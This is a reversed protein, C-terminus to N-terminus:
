RSWASVAALRAAGLTIVLWGCFLVLLNLALWALGSWKTSLEHLTQREFFLLNIANAAPHSCIYLGLLVGIIGDLTRRGTLTGQYSLWGLYLCALVVLTWMRRIDRLTITAM